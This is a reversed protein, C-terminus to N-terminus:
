IFKKTGVTTLKEKGNVQIIAPIAKVSAPDTNKVINDKIKRAFYIWFLYLVFKYKNIEDKEEANAEIPLCVKITKDGIKNINKIYKFFVFLIM